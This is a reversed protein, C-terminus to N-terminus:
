AALRPIGGVPAPGAIPRPNRPVWSTGTKMEAIRDFHETPRDDAARRRSDDRPKILPVENFSAVTGIPTGHRM